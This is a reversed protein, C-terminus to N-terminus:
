GRPEAAAEKARVEQAARVLFRDVAAAILVVMLLTNVLTLATDFIPSIAIAWETDMPGIVRRGLDSVLSGAHRGAVLVLCLTVMPVLGARVLTLLGKGLSAFRGTISTLPGTLWARLWEPVVSARRRALEAQERAQAARQELAEWRARAREDEIEEELTRAVRQGVQRLDPEPAAEGLERGYVVAGVTLWALPVVVLTDFNGLLGWLWSVAADFAGGVPGLVGIVWQYGELLWSVGRRDLVWAWVRSWNTSITTAITLLWLAEVWGALFGFGWHRQALAFRDLGWRLVLAIVVIALTVVWSAGAWTREDAVEGAFWDTSLYEDTYTENVFRRADKRLFGEAAYVALFPVLASGVVVLQRSRPMRAEDSVHDMSPMLLRLAVVLAIVSALPALAVTITAGVPSVKSLEFSGWLALERGAAGLLLVVLLVPWHAALLRLAKWVVAFAGALTRGIERLVAVTGRGSPRRAPSSPAVPTSM